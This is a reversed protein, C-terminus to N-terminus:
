PCGIIAFCQASPRTKAKRKAQKMAHEHPRTGALSLMWSRSGGQSSGCALGCAGCYWGIRISTSEPELESWLHKSIESIVM